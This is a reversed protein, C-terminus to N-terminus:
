IYIYNDIKRKVSIKKLYVQIFELLLNKSYMHLILNFIFKYMFIISYFKILFLVFMDFLINYFFIFHKLMKIYNQDM